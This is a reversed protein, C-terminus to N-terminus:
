AGRQSRFLVLGYDLHAALVAIIDFCSVRESSTCKQGRKKSVLNRVIAELKASLQLVFGSVTLM